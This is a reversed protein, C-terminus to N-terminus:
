PASPHRGSSGSRQTVAISTPSEETRLCIPLQHLSVCHSGLVGDWQLRTRLPCCVKESLHSSGESAGAPDVCSRYLASILLGGPCWLSQSCFSSCLYCSLLPVGTVYCTVWFGRHCCALCSFIRSCLLPCSELRSELCSHLTTSGVTLGLASYVAISELESILVAARVLLKWGHKREKFNSGEGLDIPHPSLLSNHSM